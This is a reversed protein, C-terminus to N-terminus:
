HKHGDHGHGHGDHGHGDHGHGDHAAPKPPAIIELLEIDFVLMGQPAGMQGKYALEEPIWLRRKEGVVMLKVGERWGPIVRMLPFTIPEGRQVSSDFLKGDTTWGSYHVRVASLDTPKDQGSGPTLVRSFIGSDHKQAGKPPAAVDEPTDIKPTKTISLLEIDFVLMGQPAGMQGKYALEEPIWIRRKEGVVMQKVGERWGPIVGNLPFKATQNRKYSSDFMKGDTTWGTYHVEVRDAEDPKEAGTGPKIVKGWVGGEQTADEPPKAVDPPAAFADDAQASPASPASPAKAAGQGQTDLQAADNKAADTKPVDAKPADTKPADAQAPTNAAPNKNECAMLSAILTAALAAKSLTSLKM